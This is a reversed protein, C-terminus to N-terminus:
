VARYYYLISVQDKHLTLSSLYVQLQSEHDSSLSEIDKQLWQEALMAKGMAVHGQESLQRYVDSTCRVLERSCFTSFEKLGELQRQQQLQVLKIMHVVEDSFKYQIIMVHTPYTLMHYIYIHM